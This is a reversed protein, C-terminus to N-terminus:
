AVYYGFLRVVGTSLMPDRRAHTTMTEGTGQADTVPSICIALVPMPSQRDRLSLLTALTLGGGASDGAIHIAQALKEATLKKADPLRPGVGLKVVKNAWSYQDFM